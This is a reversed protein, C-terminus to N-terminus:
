KVTTRAEGLPVAETKADTVGDLGDAIARLLVPLFTAANEEFSPWVKELAKGLAVLLPDTPQDVAAIVEDLEGRVILWAKRWGIGLAPLVYSAVGAIIFTALIRGTWTWFESDNWIAGM